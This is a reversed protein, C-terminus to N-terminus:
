KGPNSVKSPDTASRDFQNKLRSILRSYRQRRGGSELDAEREEQTQHALRSAERPLRELAERRANRLAEFRGDPVTTAEGLIVSGHLLTGNHVLASAALLEHAPAARWEQGQGITPTPEWAWGDLGEFIQEVDRVEPAESSEDTEIADLMVGSLVRNWVQSCTSPKDFLDISVVQNGLAVALGCAGEPYDLGERFTSLREKMSEFTDSMASTDSRSGHASMQRRVEQWVAGQDSYHGGGSRVSRTVSNKLLRRLKASSYVDSGVFHESLYRWRGREVCSVPIKTKSEAAVLVTTNLVRNQKAGRLEEGELFLVPIGGLNKVLLEPVSGSESVEEVTVTGAAIAQNALSYDVGPDDSRNPGPFLPFLSLSQKRLPPGVQVQPFTANSM